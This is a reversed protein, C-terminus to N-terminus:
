TQLSVLLHYLLTMQSKFSGVLEQGDLSMLKNSCVAVEYVHSFNKQLLMLINVM